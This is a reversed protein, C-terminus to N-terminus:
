GRGEEEEKTAREEDVIMDVRSYGLVEGKAVEGATGGM